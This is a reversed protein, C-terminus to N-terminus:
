KLGKLRTEIEELGEYRVLDVISERKQGEEDNELLIRLTLILARRYTFEEKTMLRISKRMNKVSDYKRYERNYFRCFDEVGREPIVERIKLELYSSCAWPVNRDRETKNAKGLLGVVESGKRKMIQLVKDLPM